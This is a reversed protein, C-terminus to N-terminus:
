AREARLPADLARSLLGDVAAEDPQLEILFLGAAAADALVWDRGAATLCIPRLTMSSKRAPKETSSMRRLPLKKGISIRQM